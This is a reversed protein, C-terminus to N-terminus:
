FPSQFELLVPTGAGINELVAEVDTETSERPNFFFYAIGLGLALAGFALLDNLTIGDRFLWTALLALSVAAGLTFSHQNLFRSPSM